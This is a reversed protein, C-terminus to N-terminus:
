GNLEVDNIEEYHEIWGGINGHIYKEHDVDYIVTPTYPDGTNVYVAAIDRWFRSYSIPSRLSEVGYADMIKNFAYLVLSVDVGHKNALKSMEEILQVTEAFTLKLDKAAKGALDIIQQEQATAPNKRYKSLSYKAPNQRIVSSSFALLFAKEFFVWGAIGLKRKNAESVQKSLDSSPDLHLVAVISRPDSWEFRVTWPAISAARGKRYEFSAPGDFIVRAVADSERSEFFTVGISVPGGDEREVLAEM